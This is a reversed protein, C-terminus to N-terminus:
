APFSHIGIKFHNPKVRSPILGWDVVGFSSASVVRADSSNFTTTIRDM